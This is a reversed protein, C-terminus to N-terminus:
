KEIIANVAARVEAIVFDVQAMTLQSYIPLSIENQYLSYAMPFDQSDWGLDKFLTLEPLPRFHVNVAIEKETIKDIIQDRQLESIGKIRLPYLHASGIKQESDLHPSIAYKESSFGQQYRQFIAKRKPLLDHKYQRIQALGIAACVDPMNIKMGAFLIDYKWGGAKSKTFADKTQGNLTYTRLHQYLEDSNFAEPLNLCVMGGEATTINKVAHFSFVAADAFSAISEGKYTAGLAHAADAVFLIRGLKEQEKSQPNFCSSESLCLELIEQYDVPWGAFDVSIIAKTNKNIKEKIASISINFDEAVDVLIPTAGVHIVALATACYTYAPVIVEDGPGVGFWKLMLMLGSTASNVAVCNQVGTLQCISEELLKVKPGTTIWGSSLTDTVEAIVAEDIYPPSFPIKM